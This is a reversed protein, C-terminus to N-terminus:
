HPLSIICRGYLLHAPTLLQPEGEKSPVYTIPCDNLIAEVETDLTEPMQLTVHTRGLVKTQLM